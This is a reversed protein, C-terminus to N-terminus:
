LTSVGDQSDNEEKLMNYTKESICNVKEITGPLMGNYAIMLGQVYEAVDIENVLTSRCTEEDPWPPGNFVFTNQSGDANFSAFFVIVFWKM